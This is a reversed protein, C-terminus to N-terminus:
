TMGFQAPVRKRTAFLPIGILRSGPGLLTPFRQDIDRDQRHLMSWLM